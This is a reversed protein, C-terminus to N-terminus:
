NASFDGSPWLELAVGTFSDSLEHLSIKRVGRAPDHITFILNKIEKLVVFHNFNWHLICPLKIQQFEEIEVKIARTAMGLREAVKILHSLTAGKLSVPFKQRLLRVDIELGYFSAIMSVCILGCETAETQLIVPLKNNSLEHLQEGINLMM